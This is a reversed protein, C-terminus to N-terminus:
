ACGAATMVRIRDPKNTECYLIGLPRYSQIYGIYFLLLQQNIFARYVIFSVIFPYFHDASIM